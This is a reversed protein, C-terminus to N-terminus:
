AKFVGFGTSSNWATKMRDCNTGIETEDKVGFHSYFYEFINGFRKNPDSTLSYLYGKCQDLTILLLFHKTLTNNMHVHETWYTTNLNGYTGGQSTTKKLGM